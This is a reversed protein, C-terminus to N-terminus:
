RPNPRPKSGADDAGFPDGFPVHAGDDGGQNGNKAPARIPETLPAAYASKSHDWENHSEPHHADGAAGGFPKRVIAGHVQARSPV